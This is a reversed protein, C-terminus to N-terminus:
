ATAPCSCRLQARPQIRSGTVNLWLTSAQRDKAILALGFVGNLWALAVAAILIRLPTSPM